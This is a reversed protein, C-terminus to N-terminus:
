ACCTPRRPGTFNQFGDILGAPIGTLLIALLDARDAKLAKLRPFSNPYLVPLLRALEPQAVFKAFEKERDPRPREM